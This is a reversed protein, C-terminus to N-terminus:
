RTCAWGPRALEQQEHLAMLPKQTAAESRVHSAKAGTEQANLDALVLAKAADKALDAIDTPPRQTPKGVEALNRNM